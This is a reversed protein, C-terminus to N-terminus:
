AKSIKQRHKFLATLLMRLTGLVSSAAQQLCTLFMMSCFVQERGLAEWSDSPATLKGAVEVERDEPPAPPNRCLHISGQGELSERLRRTTSGLVRSYYILLGQRDIRTSHELDFSGQQEGDIRGLQQAQAWHGKGSGQISFVRYRGCTSRPPWSICSPIDRLLPCTPCNLRQKHLNAEPNIPFPPTRGVSVAAAHHEELHSLVMRACCCVCAWGHRHFFLSSFALLERLADCRDQGTPLSAMRWRRGSSWKDRPFLVFWAGVPVPLFSEM